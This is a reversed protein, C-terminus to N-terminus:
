YHQDKSWYVQCPELGQCADLGGMPEGNGLAQHRARIDLKQM